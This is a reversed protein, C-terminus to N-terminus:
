LFHKLFKPIPFFFFFFVIFTLDEAAKGDLVKKRRWQQVTTLELKSLESSKVREIVNKIIMNEAGDAFDTHM